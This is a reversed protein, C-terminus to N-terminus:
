KGAGAANMGVLAARFRASRAMVIQAKDWSRKGARDDEAKFAAAMRCLLSFAGSAAARTRDYRLAMFLDYLQAGRIAKRNHFARRCAEGCFEATARRAAFDHGCERCCRQLEGDGKKPYRISPLGARSAPSNKGDRSVKEV